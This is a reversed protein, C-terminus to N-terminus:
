FGFIWLVLIDRRRWRDPRRVSLSRNHTRREDFSRNESQPWNRIPQTQPMPSAGSSHDGYRTPRPDGEQFRQHERDISDDTRKPSEQKMPYMKSGMNAQGAPPISKRIFREIYVETMGLARADQVGINIRRAYEEKPFGPKVFDTSAYVLVDEQRMSSFHRVSAGEKEADTLVQTVGGSDLIWSVPRRYLAKQARHIKMTKYDKRYCPATPGSEGSIYLQKATGENKDLRREDESDIEFVLGEVWDGNSPIVNAYGRENIMWQYHALTARGIYKSNPCRRAMQSLSLNSGFAFYLTRILPPKRVLPSPSIERPM